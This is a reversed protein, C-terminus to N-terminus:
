KKQKAVWQYMREKDGRCIRERSKWAAFRGYKKERAEIFFNYDELHIFNMSSIVSTSVKHLDM